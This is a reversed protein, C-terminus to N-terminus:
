TKISNTPPYKNNTNYNSNNSQKFLPILFVGTMVTLPALLSTFGIGQQFKTVQLLSKVFAPMEDGLYATSTGDLSIVAEV